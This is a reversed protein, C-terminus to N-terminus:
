HLLEQLQIDCELMWTAENQVRLQNNEMYEMLTHVTRYKTEPKM